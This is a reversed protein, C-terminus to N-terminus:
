SVLRLWFSVAEARNATGLKRFIHKVHGKVTGESITLARAIQANTAGQAVLELVEAERRTLANAARVRDGGATPAAAAATGTLIPRRYTQGSWRRRLESIHASIGDVQEHLARLEEIMTLRSMTAGLFEGFLGLLRIDSNAFRRRRYFADAHVFGIVTRHALIPAAVYRQGKAVDIIASYCRPLRGVDDVLIPRLRRLMEAEPLSADIVEPHQRGAAVIEAAWAPDRDIHGAAPIWQGDNVSSIMARDFGLNAAAIAARDLLHTVEGIQDLDAVADCLGALAGDVREAQSSQICTIASKVRSLMEIDRPDPSTAAALAEVASQWVTDLTALAETCDAVDGTAQIHPYRACATAVIDGVEDRDVARLGLGQRRPSRVSSVVPAITM